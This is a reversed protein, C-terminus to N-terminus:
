WENEKMWSVALTTFDNFILETPNIEVEECLAPLDASFRQYRAVMKEGGPIIAGSGRSVKRLWNRVIPVVEAEDGRHSEIDQGAIDSIFKQYRYEERDLVLCAKEKQRGGGFRKAGLFLGLELPMNFRPLDYAADLETRSIDHIGFRCDEIIDMIRNIRVQSSDSFELTSRAVFGADHVVFAIAKMMDRYEADFPCNIFVNQEYAM